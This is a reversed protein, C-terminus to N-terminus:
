SSGSTSCWRRTRSSSASSPRVRRARRRRARRPACFALALEPDVLADYVARGRRRRRRDGVSRAARARSSSARAPRRRLASRCSTCSPEGARRDLAGRGAGVRAAALEDVLADVRRSRSREPRTAAGFWRQRPSSPPCCRALEDAVLDIMSSTRWARRTRAARVLLLRLRCPSSTPCSASAAPVAGARAARRAGQRGAPSLILEVPQAFRSLNNVCLVIDDHGDDVRRAASTPSCRRTRRRRAGRLTGTGFVPHESACRRAHAAALAPVLEPRAAAAEVNVAQFGYVPDM